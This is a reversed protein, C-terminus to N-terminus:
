FQGRGLKQVEGKTWVITGGVLYEVYRSTRATDVRDEESVRGDRSEEYYPELFPVSISLFRYFSLLVLLLLFLLFLPSSRLFLSFTLV